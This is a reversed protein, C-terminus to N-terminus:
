LRVVSVLRDNTQACDVRAIRAATVNLDRDVVTVNRTLHRLERVRQKVRQKHGFVGDSVVDGHREVAAFNWTVVQISRKWGSTNM